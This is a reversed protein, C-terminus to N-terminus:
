LFKQSVLNRLNINLNIHVLLVISYGKGLMSLMRRNLTEVLHDSLWRDVLLNYGPM